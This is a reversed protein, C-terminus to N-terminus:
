WTVGIINEDEVKVVVQNKYKVGYDRARLVTDGVKIVSEEKSLIGTRIVESKVITKKKALSLDLELDERLTVDPEDQLLVRGSTPFIEDDYIVGVVEKALVKFYKKDKLELAYLANTDVFVTLGVITDDSSYVVRGRDKYPKSELYLGSPSIEPSMMEELIMTDGVLEINENNYKFYISSPPVRFIKKGNYETHKNFKFSKNSGIDGHFAFHYTFVIDGLHLNLPNEKTVAEVIGLQCNRSRLNNEYNKVIQIEIGGLDYKEKHDLIPSLLYNETTTQLM